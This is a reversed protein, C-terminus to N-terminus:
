QGPNQRRKNKIAELHRAGVQDKPRRAARKSAILTDLELVPYHFGAVELYEIKDRINDFSGIGTLEGLIDIVGLDTILNLNKFGHIRAPDDWLPTKDPRMRFRANVGRMASHIRRLNDDTMPACVDVDQTGVASGHVVAAMGGVLVYEVGNDSLRKLLQFLPDM